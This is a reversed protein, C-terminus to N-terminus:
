ESAGGTARAVSLREADDLLGERVAEVKAQVAKFREIRDARRPLERSPQWDTPEKSSAAVLRRELEAVWGRTALGLLRLEEITFLTEYM